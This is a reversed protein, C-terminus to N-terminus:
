IACPLGRGIHIGSLVITKNISNGLFEGLRQAPANYRGGGAIFAKKEIERQLYMGALPHGSGFDEPGIQVLVASNANEGGRNYNSMGNVCVM